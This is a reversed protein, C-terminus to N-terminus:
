CRARRRRARVLGIGLGGAVLLLSAPEPVPAVYTEFFLDANRDFPGYMWRDAGSAFWMEGGRYPNDVAGGWTGPGTGLPAEPYSLVIAYQTGAVQPVLTTFRLLDDSETRGGAVSITGLTTLGPSGITTVDTIAVQLRSPNGVEIALSVGVLVGTLGATYTQAVFPCCDNIAASLQLQDPSGFSQDLLVPEAASRVPLAIAAGAVVIPLLSKSWM